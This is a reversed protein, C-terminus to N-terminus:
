SSGVVLQSNSGLIQMNKFVGFAFPQGKPLCLSGFVGPAMTIWKPLGFEWSLAWHKGWHVGETSCRLRTSSLWPRAWAGGSSARGTQSRAAARRQFWNFASPNFLPPIM